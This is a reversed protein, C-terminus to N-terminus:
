ARQSAVKSGSSEGGLESCEKVAGIESEQGTKRNVWAGFEEDKANKEASLRISSMYPSLILKYQTGATYLCEALGEVCM